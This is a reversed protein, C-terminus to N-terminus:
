NAHKGNLTAASVAPLSVSRSKTASRTGSHGSEATFRVDAPGREAAVRYCINHGSSGSGEWPVDIFAEYQCLPREDDNSVFVSTSTM